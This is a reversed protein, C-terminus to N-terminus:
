AEEASQASQIINKSRLQSLATGISRFIYDLWRLASVLSSKRGFATLPEDESRASWLRHNKRKSYKDPTETLLKFPWM